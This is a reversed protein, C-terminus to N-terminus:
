KNIHFEYSINLSKTKWINMYLNNKIIIKEKKNMDIKQFKNKFITLREILSIISKNSPYFRFKDFILYKWFLFSTNIEKKEENTENMISLKLNIHLDKLTKSLDFLGTIIRGDWKELVPVVSNRIKGRQSWEPTSNKLYPIKHIHAFKYIDEKSTKYLPRIFEIDDIISLHEMGILNDYKNKYSINTLINEFCDDKNHGLIIISNLKKYSNFRVKKTYSEYVDRLDNDISPKRKIENITRVFLQIKLKNCLTILFNVEETTEQRNNYNIHLAKIKKNPYKHKIYFLCSNSDVGGSLSIIIEEKDRLIDFDGLNMELERLDEEPNYELINEDFGKFEYEELEEEFNARNYTAKLFKKSQPLRKWGEEMAFFLHKKINTHRYVLLFFMWDNYSLNPLLHKNEETINLAKQNFYSIIHYAFENRYIHRTLQDYIIIQIIPNLNYDNLLYEYKSTLYEDLNKNSNFWYRELNMWEQYFDM